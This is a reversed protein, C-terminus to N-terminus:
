SFGPEPNSETKMIYKKVRDAVKQSLFAVEAEKGSKTANLILQRDLSDNPILKLVEGVRLCSQTMLLLMLRNRPNRTRLIIEDVVDKEQIDFQTPKLTTSINQCWITVDPITLWVLLM